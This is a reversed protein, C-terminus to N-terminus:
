VNIKEQPIGIIESGAGETGWDRGGYGTAWDHGGNDKCVTQPKGEEAKAVTIKGGAIARVGAGNGTVLGGKLTVEGRKCTVGSYGNNRIVCDVLMASAVHDTVFVGHYTGANGSDEVTCRTATLKGGCQVGWQASGFVRCDEMVLSARPQVVTTGTSTCKTMTASGGYLIMVRQPFHVSDFSVGEAQLELRAQKGSLVVGEQGILTVGAAIKLPGYGERWAPVSNPGAPHATNSNHAANRYDGELEYEGRALRVVRNEMACLRHLVRVHIGASVDAATVGRGGLIPDIWRRIARSVRFRHLLATDLELLLVDRYDPVAMLEFLACQDANANEARDYSTRARTSRRLASSM